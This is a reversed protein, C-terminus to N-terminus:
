VDDCQPNGDFLPDLSPRLLCQRTSTVPIGPMLPFPFSGRGPFQISAQGMVVILILGHAEPLSERGRSFVLKKAWLDSTASTADIKSAGLSASPHGVASPM